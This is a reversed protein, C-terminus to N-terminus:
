CLLRSKVSVLEIKVGSQILEVRSHSISMMKNQRALKIIPSSFRNSINNIMLKTKYNERYFM